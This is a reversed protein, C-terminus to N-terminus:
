FWFLKERVETAEELIELRTTHNIGKRKRLMEKTAAVNIRVEDLQRKKIKFEKSKRAMEVKNDELKKIKAEKRMELTSIEEELEKMMNVHDLEVQEM